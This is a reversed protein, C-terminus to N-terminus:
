LIIYCAPRVGYSTYGVSCGYSYYIEGDKYVYSASSDYNVVPSRLWWSNKQNSSNVYLGQCKAYETGKAQRASYSTYYTTAEKYSLLFMKDNTNKCSYRPELSTSNDVEATEILVKQLDNFSTNYFNDNLFKRIDSLEYNNAYGTGGNHSFTSDSSSPYFDQSDLILNAIILARGSSETLIDWEIPDYSFWYVINTSYGNDDQSSNSISSSNSCYGPRYQTFYVGRYDYTDNNDYDIDQYYMYSTVSSSIYYNYDTWNYRNSSTPLTGGLTNLESILTNDTVKTQPYTGFYIKNEDRVYTSTTTTINMDNAQVNFSYKNGIHEITGNITWVLFGGRNNVATLTIKSNYEYKNGSTIGLITIGEAQNDITITYQNATYRAEYTVNESPMNFTYTLEQTLLVDGSYWGIFTYGQNTTATISVEDGVKYKSTLSSVNGGASINQILTVKIWRAEYTVNESPMNFIYSLEKTLLTNGNYWGVFTYGQNTTAEITVSADENFKVNSLDTVSGANSDNVNLLVILGRAPLRDVFIVSANSLNFEDDFGAPIETGKIYINLNSDGYFCNSGVTMVIDDLFINTLHNCNYFARAGISTVNNFTIDELSTCGYFTNDKIKTITDPISIETIKTCGFFAGAGLYELSDPLEISELLACNKFVNDGLHKLRSPLTITTINKGSFVNNGIWYVTSPITISTFKTSGFANDGITELNPALTYTINNITQLKSFAYPYIHKTNSNMVYSDSSGSAKILWLYQNSSNGLYDGTGNGSTIKNYTLKSCGYFADSGIYYVSTPISLSTLKTCNYFANSDIYELNQNLTLTTIGECNKFANSGIKTLNTPLSINTLQVCHEFANNGIEKLNSPMTITELSNCYAFSEKEFSEITSPLQISSINLCQKFAKEGVKTVTYSKNNITINSSISVSSLDKNCDVITATNGEVLYTIGDKTTMTSVGANYYTIPGLYSEYKGSNEDEIYLKIDSLTSGFGSYGGSTVASSLYINRVKSSSLGSFAGRNSNSRIEGGNIRITHLTSPIADFIYDFSLNTSTKSEGVFPLVIEELKTCNSIAAKGIKEINSQIVIKKTNTLGDLGKASIEKIPLNNFTFPVVVTEESINGIGEIIYYKKDDSLSYEFGTTGTLVKEFIAKITMSKKINNLSRDWGVFTYNSDSHNPSAGDYVVNDGYKVHYTKLIKNDYNVFTVVCDQVWKAYITKNSSILTSFSFSKTFSSDSYWGEFIYGEKIPDEPKNATNGIVIRKPNIKSGGNTEFSLTVSNTDDLKLWKAYLTIATSSTSNIKAGLAVKEIYNADLYWGEFVYGDAELTPLESPINTVNTIDSPKTGHGNTEFKITYKKEGDTPASDTKPEFGEKYYVSTVGAADIALRGNSITGSYLEENKGFVEMYLTINTGEIKLTGTDGNEDEWKSSSIKYYSDKNLRNDEYLYYTEYISAKNNCSAMVFLSLMTIFMFILIAIVKKDKM